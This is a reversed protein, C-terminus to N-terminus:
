KTACTECGGGTCDGCSGKKAGEESGFLSIFLNTLEEQEPILGEFLMDSFDIESEEICLAPLNKIKMTKRYAPTDHIEVKTHSLLGLEELSVQVRKLLEDADPSPGVIRLLM